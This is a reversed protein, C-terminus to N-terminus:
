KVHLTIDLRDRLGINRSFMERYDVINNTCAHKLIENLHTTVINKNDKKTLFAKINEIMFFHPVLKNHKNLIDNIYEELISVRCKM